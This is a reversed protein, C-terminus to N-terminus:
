LSDVPLDASPIPLRAEMGGDVNWLAGTVFSSPQTLTAVISAAEDALGLRGLPIRASLADLAEDDAQLGATMDTAFTGLMLANVRVHPALEVALSKTLGILAAKSASYAVRDRGGSTALVSSMFVISGTGAERMRLGCRRAIAFPAITNTTLTATFDDLTTDALSSRLLRAGSVILSGPAGYEAMLGDVVRECGHPDTLDLLVGRAWPSGEDRCREEVGMASEADNVYTVIVPAGERALQVACAAGIGRSGGVILTWRRSTGNM